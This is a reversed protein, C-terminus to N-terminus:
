FLILIRNLPRCHYMAAFYLSIRQRRAHLKHFVLIIVNFVGNEFLTCQQTYLLLEHVSHAVCHIGVFCYWDLGGIAIRPCYVCVYYYNIYQTTGLKPSPRMIIYVCMRTCIGIEDREFYIYIYGNVFYFLGNIAIRKSVYYLLFIRSVDTVRPVRIWIIVICMFSYVNYINPKYLLSAVYRAIGNTFETVNRTDTLRLHFVIRRCDDFAPHFVNIIFSDNM